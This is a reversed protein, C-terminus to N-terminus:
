DLGYRAAHRASAGPALLRMSPKAFVDGCFDVPDGHGTWSELCLFPAPPRSWLAFHPFDATEVTLARGSPAEFRFVRSEADLFCLAEHALVARSLPLLAGAAPSPRRGPGFLGQPSIEPISNQEPREFVLRYDDPAGGDFPWRFGPHLGCAYPLPRDGANEVTLAVDLAADGLRYDVSLAFRFPYIARSQETDRLIFRAAAADRQALAFPAAAAFGHVGMPASFDGVRLRDGRLRGVVPFLIPSVAPWVAADPTWLLDLDRARWARLEAGRTRVVARASGCQLTLSEDADTM